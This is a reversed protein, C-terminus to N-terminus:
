DEPFIIHQYAGLDFNGNTGAVRTVGLIDTSVSTANGFDKADSDDGIMLKNRNIDMFNPSGNKIINTADNLFEYMPINYQGSNNFRIQCKTFVPDTWNAPTANESKRMLMEIQNSGFIICNTFNAQELDFPVQENSENVYFNDVLVALQSSSPWNNNFTCHTFNYTGGLTCALAASGASNVVVNEGTINATQALIGFSSCDYIQTNKLTVTNAQTYLGVVANKITVHDFSGTSGQTLWIAFWQGPIDSFDPELRDGEFVVETAETPNANPAGVVISAGDDVIIGSSDHLHIRAGPQITLTEGEPVAAIGYIVYPKENTFTYEDGNVPDNHDLFFGYVDDEGIQISEYHGQDDLRQPYLFYADQILTVLEVTQLNTGSDFQIQDTYLFDDPNAEAINATTEIFIYLSDNALLEVNNFLKGNVGQMGDVTMRYKSDQGKGLQITPINVDKDSRNYVKLTYTSSGINSFVTDLYVTDRSFKLDGTSAEFEFDKRCSSLSILIGIFLIFASNRIM